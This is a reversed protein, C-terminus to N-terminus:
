EEEEVEFEQSKPKAMDTKKLPCDPHILRKGNDWKSIKYDDGDQILKDMMNCRWSDACFGGGNDHHSCPCDVFCGTVVILRNKASM